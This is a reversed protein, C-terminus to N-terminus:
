GGEATATKVFSNQICFAGFSFHGEGHQLQIEMGSSAMLQRDGGDGTGSRMRRAILRGVMSWRPGSNATSPRLPAPRDSFINLVSCGTM